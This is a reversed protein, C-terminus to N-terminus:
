RGMTRLRPLSLGRSRGTRQGRPGEGSPQLYWMPPHSPAATIGSGTGDLSGIMDEITTTAATDTMPYYHTSTEGIDQLRKFTGGNYLEIAQAASIANDCWEFEAVDIPAGNNGTQQDKGIAFAVTNTQPVGTVGFGLPVDLSTVQVEANTYMRLLNTASAAPDFSVVLQYWDGTTKAMSAAETLVTPQYWVLSQTMAASINVSWSRTGAASTNKVVIRNANAPTANLKYILVFTCEAAMNFPATNASGGFSIFNPSSATDSVKLAV